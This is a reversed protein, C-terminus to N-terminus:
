DASQNAAPCGVPTWTVEHSQFGQQAAVQWPPTLAVRADSTAGLVSITGRGAPYPAPYPLAVRLPVDTLRFVPSVYKGSQLRIRGDPGNPLRAITVWALKRRCAERGRFQAIAEPSASVTDLAAGIEDQGVEALGSVAQPVANAADAGPRIVYGAILASVIAILAAAWGGPAGSSARAAPQFERAREDGSM